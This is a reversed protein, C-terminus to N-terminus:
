TAPVVPWGSEDVDHIPDILFLDEMDDYTELSPSGPLVIDASASELDSAAVLIGEDVLRTVFGAVSVDADVLAELAVGDLLARVVAAGAADARHYRGTRLNIFLAEDDFLEHVVGSPPLQFTTM